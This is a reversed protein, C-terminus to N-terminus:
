SLNYNFILLNFELYIFIGLGLPFLFEDYFTHSITLVAAKRLNFPVTLFLLVANSKWDGLIKVFELPISAHFAFSAGGRRFSHSGYQAGDIGCKSLLDRLKSLFLSYAFPQQRLSTPHLWMFAQSGPTAPATFSFAHLIASTPCLPSGSVQPLPICIQREKFLTTKSWRVNLEVRWPFFRFDSKTFQQKANFGSANTVVM